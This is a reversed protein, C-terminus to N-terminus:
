KLYEVVLGDKRAVYHLPTIGGRRKINVLSNDIAVFGRVMRSHNNQLTLHMPSFGLVNLKSALSLKLIMLEM